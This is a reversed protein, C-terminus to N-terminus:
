QNNGAAWQNVNGNSTVPEDVQPPQQVQSNDV